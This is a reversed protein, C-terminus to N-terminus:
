QITRKLVYKEAAAKLLRNRLEIQFTEIPEIFPMDIEAITLRGHGNTIQELYFTYHDKFFHQDELHFYHANFAGTYEPSHYGWFTGKRQGNIMFRAEPFYPENEPPLSSPIDKETMDELFPSKGFVQEPLQKLVEELVPKLLEAFEKNKKMIPDLQAQAANQYDNFISM